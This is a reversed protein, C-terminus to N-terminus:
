LSAVAEGLPHTKNNNQTLILEKITLKVVNEAYLLTPVPFKTYLCEMEKADEM